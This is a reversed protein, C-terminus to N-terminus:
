TTSGSTHLFGLRERSRACCGSASRRRRRADAALDLLVSAGRAVSLATVETITKGHLRVALAEPKLRAGKCTPCPRVSMFRELEERM